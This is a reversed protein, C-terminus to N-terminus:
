SEQLSQGFNLSSFFPMFMAGCMNIGSLIYFDIRLNYLSYYSM